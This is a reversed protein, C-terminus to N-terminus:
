PAALRNREARSHMVCAIAAILTGVWAVAAISLAVNFAAVTADDGLVGWESLVSGYVGDDGGDQMTFGMVIFAIWLVYNPIDYALRSAKAAAADKDFVFVVAPVYMALIVVPSLVLGIMALWGMPAGLLGPGLVAFAPLLVPAIWRFVRVFRNTLRM